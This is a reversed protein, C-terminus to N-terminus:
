LNGSMYNKHGPPDFPNTKPMMDQLERPLISQASKRCIAGLAHMNFNLARM